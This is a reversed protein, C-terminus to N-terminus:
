LLDHKHLIKAFYQEWSNSRDLLDLMRAHIQNKSLHFNNQKLELIQTTLEIQDNAELVCGLLRYITTYSSDDLQVQQFPSLDPDFFEIVPVGLAFCDMAGSSWFSIVLDANAAAQLIHEDTYNTFQDIETFYRLETDSLIKKTGFFRKYRSSASLHEFAKIVYHKDDPRILRFRIPTLNLRQVDECYNENFKMSKMM